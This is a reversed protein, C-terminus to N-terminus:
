EAHRYNGEPSLVYDVNYPGLKRGHAYGDDAAHSRAADAILTPDTAPSSAGGGSLSVTENSPAASGPAGDPRLTPADPGKPPVPETAM